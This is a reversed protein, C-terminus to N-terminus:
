CESTTGPLDGPYFVHDGNYRARYETAFGADLLEIQWNVTNQSPNVYAWFAPPPALTSGANLVASVPRRALSPHLSASSYVIELDEDSQELEEALNRVWMGIHNMGTGVSHAWESAVSPGSIPEIIELATGKFRTFAVRSVCPATNLRGHLQVTEPRHDVDRILWDDLGLLQDWTSRFLDISDVVIGIHSFGLIDFEKM